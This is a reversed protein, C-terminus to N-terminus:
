PNLIMNVGLVIDLVNHLGDLNIDGSQAGLEYGEDYVEECVDPVGDDNCDTGDGGCVGSCDEVNYNCDCYNGTPNGYCNCSGQAYECSGDDENANPVYNCAGLDTCGYITDCNDLYIRIALNGSISTWDDASSVRQYSNGSDSSTDLGFPNSSSFEKAGAWFDGSITLEHFSIDKINWGDINGSAQVESFLEAGPMGGDDEYLKIYFAGGAGSQYWKYGVIDQGLDNASFRVASFSGTGGNFESEFSGDDNSEEELFGNGGCVGCEFDVNYNCDCYNGTPNGYCNCSGQAYECSGDDMTANDDFNCAGMDTCGYVDGGCDGGDNDYCTLDAGYQQDECDEFGDGIWSEPWCEDTGDCDLIQGDPCDGPPLCDEPCTEYTEDGNCSGDGCDPDGDGPCNCGSCDWSYNAELAACDIAYEDWATDCCESGYATFDFECDNCTESGGGTDGGTTGGDTTSGDCDGGDNDYCTLDCGYAQDECDEFGDGIWSEPCCDGDGSCDDVCDGGTDGGARNQNNEVKKGISRIDKISSEGELAYDNAVVGITFLLLLYLNKM